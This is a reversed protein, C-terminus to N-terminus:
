SIQFLIFANYPEPINLDVNENFNHFIHICLYVDNMAAIYPVSVAMEYRAINPKIWRDM